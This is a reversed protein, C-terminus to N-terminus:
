KRLYKKNNQKEGNKFLYKVQSMSYISSSLVRMLIRMIFYEM